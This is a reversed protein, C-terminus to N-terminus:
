ERSLLEVLARLLQERTYPKQLFAARPTELLVEHISEEHYGSCLLVPLGAHIRRIEKLLELGSRGPMTLDVIAADPRLNQAAVLATDADSADTVRAGARELMRSAIRRLAEDDDVVLVLKGELPTHGAVPTIPRVPPPTPAATTTPWYTRFTTGVGPKSDICIAGGHSRLIGLVVPLGLGRGQFKTSFFPDFIRALTEKDIGTGTDSVAICVYLGPDLNLGIHDDPIPGGEHKHTRARIDLRGGQNGMAEAANTVLNMIVQDFQAPDALIRPLDNDVEIRFQLNPGFGHAVLSQAARISSAM